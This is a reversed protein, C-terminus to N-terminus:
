ARMRGAVGPPRAIKELTRKVSELLALGKESQHNSFLDEVQRLSEDIAGLVKNDKDRKMLAAQMLMSAGTIVLNIARLELVELSPKILFKHANWAYSVVNAKTDIALRTIAKPQPLTQRIYQALEELQQM